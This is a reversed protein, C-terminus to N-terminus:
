MAIGICSRKCIRVQGNSLFHPELYILEGVAGTRHGVQNTSGSAFISTEPTLWIRMAIVKQMAAIRRIGDDARAADGASSRAVACFLM